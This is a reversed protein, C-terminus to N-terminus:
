GSDQHSVAKLPKIPMNPEDYAVVFNGDFTHGPRPHHQHIQESSASLFGNRFGPSSVLVGQLPKKSSSKRPPQGGKIKHINRQPVDTIVMSGFQSDV